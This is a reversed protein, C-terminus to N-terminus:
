PSLREFCWTRRCRPARADDSGGVSSTSTTTAGSVNGAGIAPAYEVDVVKALRGYVDMGCSAAYGHRPSERAERDDISEQAGDGSIAM